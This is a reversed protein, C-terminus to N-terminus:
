LVRVYHVYGLSLANVILERPTERTKISAKPKAQESSQTPKVNITVSLMTGEYVSEDVDRRFEELGEQTRFLVWWWKVPGRALVQTCSNLGVGKFGEHKSFMGVLGDPTQLPLKGGDAASIRCTYLHIKGNAERVSESRPLHCYKLLNDEKTERNEDIPVGCILGSVVALVKVADAAGGYRLHTSTWGWIGMAKLTGALGPPSELQPVLEQVDCWSTFLAAFSPCTRSIWRWEQHMNFGLLIKDGEFGSLFDISRPGAEPAPRETMLGVAPGHPRPHMRVTFAEIDADEYFQTLNSTFQPTAATPFVVVGLESIDQHPIQRVAFHKEVGETDFAILTSTPLLSQLTLLSTIKNSFLTKPIPPPSACPSTQYCKSPPKYRPHLESFTSKSFPSFVACDPTSDQSTSLINNNVFTCRPTRSKFRGKQRPALWPREMTSTWLRAIIKWPENLRGSGSRSELVGM